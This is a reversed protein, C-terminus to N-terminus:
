GQLGALSVCCDGPAPYGIHASLAASGSAEVVGAVLRLNMTCVLHACDRILGAFPCNGFQLTGAEARTAYGQEDLVERVAAQLDAPSGAGRAAATRGLARGAEAATELVADGVPKDEAMSRRVANALIGAALEYRRAPVSVTFERESRRYVKAPRGAGPGTRGPPRRHDAELLGEAVLRDLNAKVVHHALGTAAAVEERTVYDCQRSVYWHLARRVPDALAAIGALDAEGAVPDSTVRVV